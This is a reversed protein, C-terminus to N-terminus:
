KREQSIVCRWLNSFFGVPSIWEEYLKRISVQLRVFEQESINQHFNTLKEPLAGIESEDIWVVYKKWDIIHDYPLVCDTDIFIPIRGCSLVEYLRYSFNGAGRAVIVYDSNIMNQAYQMRALMKDKVERAYFGERIIFNTQVGDYTSLVRVANGRLISEKPSMRFEFDRLISRGLRLYNRPKLYNRVCSKADYYDVYGCFGVSPIPAKLRPQFGQEYYKLFDVSWGPLGFENSRKTSRYFSTRFIVANEIPVAEDSDSCFFILLPKNFKSAEAALQKAYDRVEAFEWAVPLLFADAEEKGVFEFVDKGIRCYEDMRGYDPGDKKDTYTEIFPFLLFVYPSSQPVFSRDFFLKLKREAM